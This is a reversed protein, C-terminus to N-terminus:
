GHSPVNPGNEQIEDSTNQGQELQDEVGTQLAVPTADRSVGRLQQETVDGDEEVKYKDNLM